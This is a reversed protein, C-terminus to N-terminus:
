YLVDERQNGLLCKLLPYKGNGEASQIDWDLSAVLARHADSFARQVQNIRFANRGVNNTASLPDEVFLPDFTSPRDYGSFNNNKGSSRFNTEKPHSSQNKSSLPVFVHNSGSTAATSTSAPMAFFRPRHRSDDVSGTDSFSNRRRFDVSNSSSNPPLNNIVVHKQHQQHPPLSRNWIPQGTPEYGAAATNSNARAFYRRGGVSIGIARPDFFNGYFDLFGMLLSGCDGNSPPQEQLYRALMLFLCYSSLGGTYATLLGRHLLFQKLVLMLPRILPLEEMTQAVMRNADIGHHEPGDFSIDLQIMRARTDKTSVKIVPVATHEIVKISRPDIWSEGKLERALLKQSTENIANRGELVGPALALDKKHVAPLCVVFDLDSTPLCLGSIYSGYIKVQARPWVTKVMRSFGSTFLFFM